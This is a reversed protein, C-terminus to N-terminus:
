STATPAKARSPPATSWVETEFLQGIERAITAFIAGLALSILTSTALTVGAGIIIWISM